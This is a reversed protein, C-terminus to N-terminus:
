QSGNSSGPIFLVESFMDNVKEISRDLTLRFKKQRQKGLHCNKCDVKYRHEIMIDKEISKDKIPRVYKPCTHCLREHWVVIDEVRETM